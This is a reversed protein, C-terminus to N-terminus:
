EAGGDVVRNVTDHGHLEIGVSDEGTDVREGLAAFSCGGANGVVNTAFAAVLGYSVPESGESLIQVLELRCEGLGCM